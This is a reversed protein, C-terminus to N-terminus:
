LDAVPPLEVRDSNQDECYVRAGEGEDKRGSDEDVRPVEGGFGAAAGGDVDAQDEVHSSLYEEVEEQDLSGVLQHRRLEGAEAVSDVDCTNGADHEPEADEGDEGEDVGHGREGRDVAFAADPEGEGDRDGEERVVDADVEEEGEDEHQSAGAQDLDAPEAVRHM